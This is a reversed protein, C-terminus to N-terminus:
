LLAGERRVAQRRRTLPPALSAALAVVMRRFHDRALPITPTFTLGGHGLMEVLEQVDPANM